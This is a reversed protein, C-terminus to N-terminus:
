AGVWRLTIAVDLGKGVPALQAPLPVGVVAPPGSETRMAYGILASLGVAGVSHESCWRRGSGALVICAETYLMPM